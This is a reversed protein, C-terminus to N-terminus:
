GVVSQYKVVEIIKGSKRMSPNFNKVNSLVLGSYVAVLGIEIDFVIRLFM